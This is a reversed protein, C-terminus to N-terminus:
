IAYITEATNALGSQPKANFLKIIGVLTGQFKWNKNFLEAQGFQPKAQITTAVLMLALAGLITRLKMNKTLYNNTHKM